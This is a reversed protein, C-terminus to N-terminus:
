IEGKERLEALSKEVGERSEEAKDFQFEIKPVPRMRLRRNLFQQINYINKRLIELIEKKPADGLFSLYATADFLNSSISVKTITVLTNQPFEIEREIIEALEERLLNNLKEIRRGSAM